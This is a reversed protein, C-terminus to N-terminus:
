PSAGAEGAIGGQGASGAAGGMGGMGGMGGTSPVAEGLEVFAAVADEPRVVVNTSGSEILAGTADIARVEVTASGKEIDNPLSLRKFYAPKMGCPLVSVDALDYARNAAGEIKVDLSAIAEADVSALTCVNLAVVTESDSCALALTGFVLGAFCALKM